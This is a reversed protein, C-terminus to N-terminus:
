ETKKTCPFHFRFKSLYYCQSYTSCLTQWITDNYLVLFIPATGYVINTPSSRLYLTNTTDNIKRLIVLNITPVM